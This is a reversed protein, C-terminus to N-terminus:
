KGTDSGKLYKAAEMFTPNWIQKQNDKLFRLLQNHAELSVNLSHEGGVGHFLFVIMSNAQMAQKVLAILEDGSQNNIVYCPVNYL